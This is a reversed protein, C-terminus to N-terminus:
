VMLGFGANEYQALDVGELKTGKMNAGGFGSCGKFVTGNMTAGEFDTGAFDFGSLEAGTLDADRFSLKAASTNPSKEKEYKRALTQLWMTDFADGKFATGFGKFLRAGALKARDFNCNLLDRLKQHSLNAGKFNVNRIPLLTLRVRRLDVNEFSAGELKAMEMSSNEIKSDKLDVLKLNANDFSTSKLKSGRFNSSSLDCNDFNAGTLDRGSFDIDRLIFYRFDKKGSALMRDVDEQSLHTTSRAEIKRDSLKRRIPSGYFNRFWAKGEFSNILDAEQDAKAANAGSKGISAQM